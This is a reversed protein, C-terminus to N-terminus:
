ASIGYKSLDKVLQEKSKFHISNIGLRGASQVNELKDDIYVVDNPSTGLEQLMKKYYKPDPKQYGLDSSIFQREFLKDTSQTKLIHPFAVSNDNTTVVTKYKRNLKSVLDKMGPNIRVKETYYNGDMLVGGYDFALVPKKGSFAHKLMFWFLLLGITLFVPFQLLLGALIIIAAEIFDGM